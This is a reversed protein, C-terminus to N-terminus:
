IPLNERLILSLRPPFPTHPLDRARAVLIALAERAEARADQDIVADLTGSLLLARNSDTVEHAAFVINAQRDTQELAEAIGTTGGGANYIALLDPHDRLLALTQERARDRDERNERLDLLTLGPYDQALIQRLGMEREQHGRYALTGAFFAVKGTPAGGLFRGIVQGALRGARENDVGVYALRETGTLDTALTVVPIGRDTLRTIADAVRPHNFAVVIVGDVDRIRTLIRAQDQPDLGPHEHLTLTVNQQGKAQNGLAHALDRIFRNTGAPLIAALHVPRPPTAEEEQPLYGIRRAAAHVLARTRPSVGDRNNLVRDVTATSVGAAEALDPLTPRM